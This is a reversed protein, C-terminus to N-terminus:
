ITTEETIDLIKVYVEELVLLYFLLALWNILSVIMPIQHPTTINYVSLHYDKNMQKRQANAM